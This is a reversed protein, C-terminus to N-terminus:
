ATPTPASGYVVRGWRPEIQDRKATPAPASGYVVRGWRPELALRDMSGELGRSVQEEAVPVPAAVSVAVLGAILALSLKM